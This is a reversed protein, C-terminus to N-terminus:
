PPGRFIGIIETIGTQANIASTSGSAIFPCVGAILSTTSSNTISGTIQGYGFGYIDTALTPLLLGSTGVVGVSVSSPTTSTNTPVHVQIESDSIFDGSALTVTGISGFTVQTAGTFGVGTITVLNGGGIPGFDPSVSAVVPMPPLTVDYNSNVSGWAVTVATASAQLSTGTTGSEYYQPEFPSVSSSGCYYFYLNYTGQDLALNYSATTAGSTYSVPSSIPTGGTGSTSTADVCVGALYSTNAGSGAAVTGSVEAPTEYIFQDSTSTASTLGGVSVTVDVTAPLSATGTYSPATAVCSTTTLCSVGTAATSGFDVATAGSTTSFGTGSITVVTGGAESGSTPLVGTVVPGSSAAAPPTAPILVASMSGFLLTLVAIFWIWTRKM